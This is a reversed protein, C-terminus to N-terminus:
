HGKWNKFFFFAIYKNACLQNVDETVLRIMGNHSGMFWTFGQPICLWTCTELQKSPNPINKIVIFFKGIVFLNVWEFSHVFM